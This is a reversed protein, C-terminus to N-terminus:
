YMCHITIHWYATLLFIVPRDTPCLKKKNQKTKKLFFKPAVPVGTKSKQHRRRQPEFGSYTKGLESKASTFTIYMGQSGGRISCMGVKQCGTRLRDQGWMSNCLHPQQSEFEHEWFIQSDSARGVSSFRSRRGCNGINQVNWLIGEAAGRGGRGMTFQLVSMTFVYGETACPLLVSVLSRSNIFSFLSSLLMWITDKRLHKRYSCLIRQIMGHRTRLLWKTMSRKPQMQQCCFFVARIVYQRYDMVPTMVM